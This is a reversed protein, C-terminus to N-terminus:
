IQWFVGAVCVCLVFYPLISFFPCIKGINRTNFFVTNQNLAIFFMEHKISVGQKDLSLMDFMNLDWNLWNEISYNAEIKTSLHM